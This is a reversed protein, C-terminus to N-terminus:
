AAELSELEAVQEDGSHIAFALDPCTDVVQELGDDYVSVEYQNGEKKVHVEKDGAVQYFWGPMIQDWFTLDIKEAM